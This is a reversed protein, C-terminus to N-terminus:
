GEEKAKDREIKKNTGRAEKHKKTCEELKLFESGLEEDEWALFDRRM